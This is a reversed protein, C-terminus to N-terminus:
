AVMYLDTEAKRLTEKAKKIDRPDIRSREMAEIRERWAKVEARLRRKIKREYRQSAQLDHDIKETLTVERSGIAFKQPTCVRCLCVPIADDANHDIKCEM